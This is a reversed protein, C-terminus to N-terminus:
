EQSGNKRDPQPWEQVPQVRSPVSDTVRSRDGDNGQKRIPQPSPQQNNKNDEPM